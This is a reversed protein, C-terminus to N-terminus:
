EKEPTEADDSSGPIDCLLLALDWNVGDRFWSVIRSNHMYVNCEPNGCHDSSVWIWRVSHREDGEWNPNNSVWSHDSEKSIMFKWQLTLMEFLKCQLVDDKSNRLGDMWSMFVILNVTSSHPFWWCLRLGHGDMCRCGAIWCRRMWLPLFNFDTRNEEFHDWFAWRSFVNFLINNIIITLPPPFEFIKLPRSCFM